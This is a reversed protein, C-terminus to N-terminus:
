SKAAAVASPGARFRQRHVSLPRGAPTLAERRPV